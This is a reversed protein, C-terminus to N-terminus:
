YFGFWGKGRVKVDRKSIVGGSCKTGAALDQPIACGNNCLGFQNSGICVVFASCAVQNGPCVGSSSSAAPDPPSVSTATGPQPLSYISTPYPPGNSIFSSATSSQVPSPTPATNSTLFTSMPYSTPAASSPLFSSAQPAASSAGPNVADANNLPAYCQSLSGGNTLPAMPAQSNPAPGNHEVSDGPDPLLLDGGEATTCPVGPINALFMNPLKDLASTGRSEVESRKGSSATVEIPACHMYMERNGVRNFWTWAFTYKGAPIDSPIVFPYQFPDVMSASNGDLNGETNRAPCGGQVSHIVKFVSKASPALDTTLSMQCSGGGHVATGSLTLNYTSGAPIQTRPFTFSYDTKQCPYVMSGESGTMGPGDLPANYSAEIDFPRPTTLLMHSNVVTALLILYGAVLKAFCSM